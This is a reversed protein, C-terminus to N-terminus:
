PNRLQQLVKAAKKKLQKEYEKLLILRDFVTRNKKLEKRLVEGFSKRLETGLNFKKVGFFKAMKKRDEMRIGSAGHVTLPIDTLYNIKKLSLYDITAKKKEQLHTNGVSVALTDINTETTFLVVEEPLTPNNHKPNKYGVYGLEAEVSAKYSEALKTVKLTEQINEKLSLRSGDFMVSTFGEDLAAKCNDIDTAHDLHLVVQSKSIEALVTFMKSIVKLPTHKLCAPGAQLIIPTDVKSGAEVYARADEWGQVVFGILGFRGASAQRLIPVM